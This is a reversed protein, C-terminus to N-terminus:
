PRFIYVGPYTTTVPKWVPKCSSTVNRSNEVCPRDVEQPWEWGGWESFFANERSYFLQGAIGYGYRHVCSFSHQFHNGVKPNRFFYLGISVGECGFCNSFHGLFIM